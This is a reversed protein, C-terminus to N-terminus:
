HGAMTKLMLRNISEITKGLDLCRDPRCLAQGPDSEVNDTSRRLREFSSRKRSALGFFAMAGDTRGHGPLAGARSSPGERDTWADIPGASLKGPTVLPIRVGDCDSLLHANAIGDKM